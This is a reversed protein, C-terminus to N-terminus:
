ETSLHLFFDLFNIDYDHRILKIICKIFKCPSIFQQSSPLSYSMLNGKAGKDSKDICMKLLLRAYGSIETTFLLTLNVVTSSIFM